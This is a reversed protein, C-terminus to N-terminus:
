VPSTRSFSSGRWSSSSFGSTKGFLPVLIDDITSETSRAWLALRADVVNVFLYVFWFLALIAGASAVKQFVLHVMNGGDAAQFHSYLPSLAGYIGYVWILLSLPRMVAKYILRAWSIQGDVAPIREIRRQILWRVMREATVVVFTLLLSFILKLWSIDLLVKSNIWGGFRGSAKDAFKEITEGVKSGAADIQGIGPSMESEEDAAESAQLSKEPPPDSSRQAIAPFAAFVLLAAIFLVFAPKRISLTM